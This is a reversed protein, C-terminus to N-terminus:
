GLCHPLSRLRPAASGAVWGMRHRRSLVLSVVASLWFPLHRGLGLGLEPSCEATMPSVAAMTVHVASGEANAGGLEEQVM